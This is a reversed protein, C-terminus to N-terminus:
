KVKILDYLSIIVSIVGLLFWFLSFEYQPLFPEVVLILGVILLFYPSLLKEKTMKDSLAVHWKM